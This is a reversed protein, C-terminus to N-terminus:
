FYKVKKCSSNQFNLLRRYYIMTTIISGHGVSEAVEQLPVGQELLKTILTHRAAHARLGYKRYCIDSIRKRTIPEDKKQCSPFLWHSEKTHDNIYSLIIQTTWPPLAVARQKNTKATIVSLGILKETSIVDDLTLNRVESVRLGGGFLICFLAHDRIEGKGRILRHIKSYEVAKPERKYELKINRAMRAVKQFPNSRVMDLMLADEYISYLSLIKRKKTKAALPRKDHCSKATNIYRFYALADAETVTYLLVDPMKRLFLKLENVYSQITSQSHRGFAAQIDSIFTNNTIM